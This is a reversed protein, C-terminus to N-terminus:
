LSRYYSNNKINTSTQKAEEMNFGGITSEVLDGFKDWIRVFYTDRKVGGGFDYNKVKKITTKM